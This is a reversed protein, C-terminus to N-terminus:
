DYVNRRHGVQIAIVVMQNDEIEVLVRYKGIRYRWQGSRNATLGKGFKRLDDIGDIHQYLWRVILTAQHKDMKRLQKQIEPTFELRYTM